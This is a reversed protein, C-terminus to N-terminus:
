ARVTTEIYHSIHEYARYVHINNGYLKSLMIAGEMTSILLSALVEAEVEPRIEGRTIGKEIIRRLMLFWGDMARTARERLLPHADDSEIATNMIPCGGALVPDDLFSKFAGAIALLREVANTKGELLVRYRTGIKAVAYEFAELALEEKSSFHNYIGGKELGTEHMVDALSSGFYGQRNFLQAARELIMERTQDGKSM